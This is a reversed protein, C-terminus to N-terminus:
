KKGHVPVRAGNYYRTVFAGSFGRKRMKNKLAKAEAYGTFPGLTYRYWGDAADITVEQDFRYKARAEEATYKRARLAFLQVRFVVGQESLNALSDAPETEEPIETIEQLTDIRTTDPSAIVDPLPEETKEQVPPPVVVPVLQVKPEPAKGPHPKNFNYTVNVSLMSYADYKYGSVTADVKDSNVGHLSWELGINVKDGLNVWAGIGAMGMLATTWNGLTDSRRVPTGTGLEKVNSNWSTPGLGVTGYVFFKRGPKYVGSFLNSFNVLLNLNGELINGDFYLNYPVHARTHRKTGSLESYLFQGRLSLVHSFQKSLTATGGFKVENMNSTAPWFSYAKLDGFFINPGAGLGISWNDTFRSGVVGQVQAPASLIRCVLMIFLLFRSIRAM